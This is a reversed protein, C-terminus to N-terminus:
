MYPWGLAQSIIVDEEDLNLAEAVPKRNFYGRVVNNLGRNAAYLGVNQYASGAHLPSNKDDTGTYVLILPADKVYDQRAFASRIDQSSVQKLSNDLGDYLWIGNAMVAYVDLNQKNMSTPITRKGDHSVGWATYLIESLTQDDIAKPSFERQSQRRSIAEMLPIGGEIDPAPLKKINEQAQASCILTLVLAITTILKAFM